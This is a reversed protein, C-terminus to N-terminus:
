GYFCGYQDAEICDLIAQINSSKPLPEYSEWKGSARMWYLKWEEQTKVYKIKAYSSKMQENPNTWSPRTEYLEFTNKSYKFGLDIENRMHAPPRRKTIYAEVTKYNIDIIKDM